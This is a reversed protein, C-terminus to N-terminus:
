LEEGDDSKRRSDGAAVRRRTTSTSIGGLATALCYASRVYMPTSGAM